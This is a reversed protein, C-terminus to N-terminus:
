GVEKLLDKFEQREQEALQKARKPEMVGSRVNEKRRVAATQMALVKRYIQFQEEPTLM